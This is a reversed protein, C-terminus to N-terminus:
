LMKNLKKQQDPCNRSLQPASVLLTTGSKSNQLPLSVTSPKNTEAYDAFDILAEGLFAVNASGQLFNLEFRVLQFGLEFFLLLLLDRLSESTM